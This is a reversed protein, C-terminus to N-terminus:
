VLHLTAPSRRRTKPRITFFLISALAMRTASSKEIKAPIYARQSTAQCVRTHTIAMRRITEPLSRPNFAYGRRLDRGFSDELNGLDGDLDIFGSREQFHGRTGYAAAYLQDQSDQAGFGTAHRDSPEDQRVSQGVDRQQGLNTTEIEPEM